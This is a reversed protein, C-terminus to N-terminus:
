KPSRKKEFYVKNGLVKEIPMYYSFNERTIPSNFKINLSYKRNYLYGDSCFCFDNKIYELCVPCVVQKNM